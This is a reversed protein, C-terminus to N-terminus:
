DRWEAPLECDFSNLVSKKLRCMYAATWESRARYILESIIEVTEGLILDMEPDDEVHEEEILAKPKKTAKARGNNQKAKDIFEEVLEDKREPEEEVSEALEDLAPNPISKIEGSMVADSLGLSEIKKTKAAANRITKETVGFEKAVKQATTEMHYNKGSPKIIRNADGHPNKRLEYYRGWIITQQEDSLNRRAAQHEIIWCVADDISDFHLADDAHVVPSMDLELAIEYRTHGDLIYRGPMGKITCLLIGYLMGDREIGEKLRKREEPTSAPLCERLEPLIEFDTTAIVTVEKVRNWGLVM